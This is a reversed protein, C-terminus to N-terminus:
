AFDEPVFVVQVNAPALVEFICKLFSTGGSSFEIPFELPFEIDSGDYDLIQVFITHTASRASDFFPIPFILPFTGLEGGPPIIKIDFGFLAAVRVFDEAKQVGGFNGLKLLVQNRREAITTQTNFCDDPIGVSKEWDPLLEDALNVDIEDSISKTLVELRYFEVCLGRILKGINSNIDFGSSWLRGKPLHHALMLSNDDVSYPNFLNRM